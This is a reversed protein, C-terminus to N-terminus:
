YLHGNNGDRAMKNNRQRGCVSSDLIWFLAGRGVSIVRLFHPELSRIDGRMIERGRARREELLRGGEKEELAKRSEIKERGDSAATEEENVDDEKVGHM